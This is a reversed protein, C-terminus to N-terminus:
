GRAERGRAAPPHSIVFQLRQEGEQAVAVVDSDLGTWGGERDIAGKGRAQSGFVVVEYCTSDPRERLCEVHCSM